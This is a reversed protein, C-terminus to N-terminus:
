LFDHKEFGIQKAERIFDACPKYTGFLIVADPKAKAIHYLAEPARVSNRVYEGEGVLQLGRRRLADVVATRGADGYATM